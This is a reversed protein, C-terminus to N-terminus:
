QIYKILPSSSHFVHFLETNDQDHGTHSLKQMMIQRERDRATDVSQNQHQKEEELSTWYLVTM